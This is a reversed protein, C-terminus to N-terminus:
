PLKREDLWRSVAVDVADELQNQLRDSESGVLNFYQSNWKDLIELVAVSIRASLATKQSFHGPEKVHSM